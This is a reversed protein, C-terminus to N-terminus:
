QGDRVRDVWNAVDEQAEQRWQRQAVRRARRREAGPVSCLDCSCRTFPNSTFANVPLGFPWAFPHADPNRRVDEPHAAHGSWSSARYRTVAASWRTAAIRDHHHRLHGRGHKRRPRPHTHRPM